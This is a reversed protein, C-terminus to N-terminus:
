PIETKFIKLNNDTDIAYIRDGDLDIDVVSMPLEIIGRINGDADLLSIRHGPGLDKDETYDLELLGLRGEDFSGDWCIGHVDRRPGQLPLVLKKLPYEESIRIGPLSEGKLGMHFVTREDSKLVLYFDEREGKAMVLLNRFADYTRDGSIFPEMREWLLTGNEQFCHVMKEPDGIGLPLHSIVIKGGPFVCIQDPSFSVPFGGLYRGKRDLIQIRQNLKDAVFIRDGFVDVDSPHNFEGPAQGKEGISRLFEGGKSFVHIISDQADVVYLSDADHALSVPRNFFARDDNKLEPRIDVAAYRKIPPIKAGAATMMTLILFAPTLINKIM